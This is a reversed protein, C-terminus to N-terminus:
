QAAEQQTPLSLTPQAPGAWFTGPEAAAVALRQCTVEYWRPEIECGVFRRGTKLAAIATAGAGMFPDIVLEGPRTMLEILDAMLKVPKETPHGTEGTVRAVFKQSRGCDSWNRAPGTYFYPMYETSKMGWRNPTANPKDWHLLNHKRLGQARLFHQILDENQGDAMVVVDCRPGAARAIVHAVEALSIDCTVIRGDNAYNEPAFKGRMGASSLGGTTLAYPIDSAVMDAGVLVGSLDLADALYVTARGGAFSRKAKWPATM